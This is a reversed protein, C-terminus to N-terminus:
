VRLGVSLMNELKIYWTDPNWESKELLIGNCPYVIKKGGGLCPKETYVRSDQFESQLGPQDQVWFDAEWTSPNFAHAVVAQSTLENKLKVNPCKRSQIKIIWKKIFLETKLFYVFIKFLYKKAQCPSENIIGTSPFSFCSSHKCNSSLMLHMTLKSYHRICIFLYAMLIVCLHGTFGYFPPRSYLETTSLKSLKWLARPKVWLVLSFCFGHFFLWYWSLISFLLRQFSRLSAQVKM